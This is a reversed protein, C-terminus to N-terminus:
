NRKWVLRSIKPDDLVDGVKLRAFYEDPLVSKIGNFTAGDPMFACTMARRPKNTMNAGAGHAVLANHFVAGGAPIPAPVPDIKKWEPYVKFLGGLNPGIGANDFRATKHTGPLYWLCGNGLTSDDLAIWISIADRRSFSWYPNDIHWATPNGYPPKFLAQDHWVRIGDIGALTAAMEGIEPALILKAIPDHIDALKLCQTFVNAYFAESDGGQNHLEKSRLRTAVADETVDRWTQLESPSLFDHVAVFGNERYSDILQPTLTTNM